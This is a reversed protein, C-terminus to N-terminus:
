LYFKWRQDDKGRCKAQLLPYSSSNAKSAQLCRSHGHRVLRFSDGQRHQVWFHQNAGGHCGYQHVKITSTTGSPIDLCQGSSSYGFPATHLPQILYRGASHKVFRFLQNPRNHCRYVQLRTGPTQRSRYVDLCKHRYEKSELKFVAGDEPHIRFYFRQNAGGNCPYQQVLSKKKSFGPIDMCMGSYVSRFRYYYGSREVKWHQGTGTGCNQQVLNAVKYKMGGPVTICKSSNANQIRVTNDNIHTFRWRQSIYNNRSRQRLLANHAKSYAMVDLAMGSNTNIIERAMLVGAAWQQFLRPEALWCHPNEGEPSVGEWCHTVVGLLRGTSNEICPGGSDGEIPGQGASNRFLKLLRHVPHYYTVHRSTRFTGASGAFSGRGYAMCTVEVGGNDALNRTYRLSRSYGSYSGHVSLPSEVRVMAVDLSKHTIIEAIKRTQSGLTVQFVGPNYRKPAPLCHAATILWSNTLMAGGCGAVSAVAWQFPDATNGNLIAASTSAVPPQEDLEELPGCGLAHLMVFLVLAASWFSNILTTKM